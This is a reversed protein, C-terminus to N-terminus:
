FNNAIVKDSGDTSDEYIWNLLKNSFLFMFLHVPFLLYFTQKKKIIKFSYSLYDIIIVLIFRLLNSYKWRIHYTALTIASLLFSYLPLIIFHETWSNVAGFGMKLKNFVSLLFLVNVSFSTISLYSTISQAIPIKNKLLKHWIDSGNFYLFLLFFTFYTKWWRKKFIKLYIFLHEILVYNVSFFLKWKWGLRFATITTAIIPVYITQSFVAGLVNDLQRNKLIKPNYRYGRFLNFVFYEFLYAFGINSLLLLLYSKDRKKYLTVALILIHVILLVVFPISNNTLIRKSRKKIV